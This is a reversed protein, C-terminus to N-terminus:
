RWAGCFSEAEVSGNDAGTCAQAKVSGDVMNTYVSGVSTPFGANYPNCTDGKSSYCVNEGNANAISAWAIGQSYLYTENWNANCNPSYWNDIVFRVNTGNVKIGDPWYIPTSDTIYASSDWCKETIPDLNYCNSGKCL